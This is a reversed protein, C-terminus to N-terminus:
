IVLEGISKPSFTEAVSYDGATKNHIIQSDMDTPSSPQMTGKAIYSFERGIM